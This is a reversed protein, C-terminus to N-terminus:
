RRAKKLVIAANTQMDASFNLQYYNEGDKIVVLGTNPPITGLNEAVVLITIEDGLDKIAITQKAATALLKKNSILNKGNIYVSISDGDIVGNDYFSLILSDSTVSVPQLYNSKRQDFPLVSPKNDAAIAPKTEEKTKEKVKEEKARTEAIKTDGTNKPEIAKTEETNTGIKKSKTTKIEATRTDTKEPEKTKTETVKTETSKTEKKNNAAISTGADQYVTPYIIKLEKLHSILASHASDNDRKLDVGGHISYYVKTKNTEWKGVVQRLTDEDTLQIYNTVHVKKNPPEPFNNDLMAVDEVILQGDKKEAKVRKVGYFLSDNRVFTTYSYGTIKGRYESLALEYRQEKKTSDNVLTGSYLGSITQASVSISLLILVSLLIQKM